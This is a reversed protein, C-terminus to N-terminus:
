LAVRAVQRDPIELLSYGNNLGSTAIPKERIVFGFGNPRKRTVFDLGDNESFLHFYFQFNSTNQMCTSILAFSNSRLGM